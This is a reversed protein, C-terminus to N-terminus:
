PVTLPRAGVLAIRTRSPSSSSREYVGSSPEAFVNQEVQPEFRKPPPQGSDSLELTRSAANPRSYSRLGSACVNTRETAAHSIRGSSPRGRCSIRALRIVCRMM